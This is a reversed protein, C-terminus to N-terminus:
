FFQIGLMFAVMLGYPLNKAVVMRASREFFILLIHNMEFSPFSCVKLVKMPRNEFTVGIEDISVFPYMREAMTLYSYIQELSTYYDDINGYHDYSKLNEEVYESQCQLAMGLLVFAFFLM